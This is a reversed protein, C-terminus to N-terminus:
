YGSKNKRKVSMQGKKFWTERLGKIGSELKLIKAEAYHWCHECIHLGYHRKKLHEDPNKCIVSM